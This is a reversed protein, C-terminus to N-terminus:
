LGRDRAASPRLTASKGRMLEIFSQGYEPNIAPDALNGMTVGRGRATAATGPRGM